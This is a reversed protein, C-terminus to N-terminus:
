AGVEMTPNTHNALRLPALATVEPTSMYALVIEELSAPRVSFTPDNIPGGTRILLSAQREAYEARVVMHAAAIAGVHSRPGSLVLHSARLQEVEDCLQVRAASLLVLHDCVRELDAMVHSSFLVSRGSEAVDTMVTGLFAHRALPDLSSLPEDLIVLDPQKGLALALAVQARQGGSLKGVRRRLPIDLAELRRRATAADFGPNLWGGMALSEAVTFGPYLPKDQAVFGVRRRSSPRGPVGGLVRVSGTTPRLLGVLVHLLTTKGAGNPGVLGIVKQRPLRLTCERLAWTRGYRHGLGTTEVVPDGTM